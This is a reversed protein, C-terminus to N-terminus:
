AVVKKVKFVLWLVSLGAAIMALMKGHARLFLAVKAIGGGVAEAGHQIDQGSARVTDTVIRSLKSFEADQAIDAINKLLDNGEKVWADLQKQYAPTNSNAASMIAHGRKEWSEMGVSQINKLAGQVQDQSNAGFFHGASVAFGSWKAMAEVMAHDVAKITDGIQARIKDSM